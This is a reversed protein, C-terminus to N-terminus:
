RLTLGLHAFAAAGRAAHDGGALTLTLATQYHCGAADFAAATALLREV